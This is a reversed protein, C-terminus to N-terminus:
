HVKRFDVVTVKTKEVNMLLNNDRYWQALRSVQSRYNTENGTSIIGKM